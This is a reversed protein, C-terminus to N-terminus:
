KTGLEKLFKRASEAPDGNPDMTLYKEWYVRASDEQGLSHFVVGLNFFCIVHNPDIALVKRFEDLARKPLGMAHLCSAFDSRVDPSRDDIVLARRYAEAAMAFNEQDMFQNGLEVLPGYETPFDQMMDSQMDKHGPITTTAAEQPPQAPKERLLFYGGIVVVAVGVLILGDRKWNGKYTQGAPRVAGSGAAPTGCQPCFRTGSELNEGCSSCVQAEM